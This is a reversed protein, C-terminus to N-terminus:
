KRIGKFIYDDNEKEFVLKYKTVSDRNIRDVDNAIVASDKSLNAHYNFILNGSPGYSYDLYLAIEDIYLINSEISYGVSTTYIGGNKYDYDRCKTIKIAYTGSNENYIISLGKDQTEFSTNIFAVPGFLEKVKAEVELRNIEKAFACSNQAEKDIINIVALFLYYENTFPANEYYIKYFESGFNKQVFQYNVKEYYKKYDVTEKQNHDDPNIGEDKYEVVLDDLSKNLWVRYSIIYLAGMIIGAIILGKIMGRLTENM